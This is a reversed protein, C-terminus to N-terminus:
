CLYLSCKRFGGWFLLLFIESYNVQSFLILIVPTPCTFTDALTMVKKKRGPQAPLIFHALVHRWICMVCFFKVDAHQMEQSHTM